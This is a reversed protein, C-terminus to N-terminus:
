GTAEGEAVPLGLARVACEAVLKGWDDGSATRAAMQEPWIARLDKLVRERLEQDTLAALALIARSHPPLADLYATIVQSLGHASLGFKGGSPDIAQIAAESFPVAQESPEM